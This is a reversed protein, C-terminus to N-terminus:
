RASAMPSRYFAVTRMLGDHLGIAPMWGLERRIRGTNAVFDGTEVLAAMAPWPVFQITGTGTIETIARAMAVMPTGVGSGVNYTRGLAGPALGLRLLADVADDVYIYDRLQSGDGYIPLPQAALALHILHNVVGYATRDGPQGPGYPNTLRAISYQLGYTRGYIRLYQEVALKHVAHLCLPDPRQEEDIPADGGKGYALRSSAFVLRASPSNIRLAELLVLAGRCNVDLDAAPDDMSRVAGSRGALSFVVEQGAVADAIASADRVDAEVLRVNAISFRAVDEQHAALSQTVVTVDADAACLRATLHAGIFGLGGAVLVRRGAYTTM